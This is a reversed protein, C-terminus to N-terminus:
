AYVKRLLWLASFSIVLNELSELLFNKLEFGTLNLILTLLVIGLIISIEQLWPLSDILLIAILSGFAFILIDPDWGPQFKLFLVTTAMLLIRGTWSSHFRSLAILLALALNPKIGGIFFFSEQQLLSALALLVLSGLYRVYKLM